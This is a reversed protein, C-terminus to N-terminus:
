YGTFNEIKIREESVGIATVIGEINSVMGPPGVIYFVSSSVDSYKKIMEENIRGSEFGPVDEKTLTYIVKINPLIKSVELLEKHYIIEEKTSFSALLIIINTLKKEFAYTLMSYYPTIGIGGALFVKPRLDQEDLVFTGLPGFFNIQEGEKLEFLKRKFSTIGKKTTIVLYNNLPSVAVTFPRSTGREDPNEMEIRWRNYQGPAFEFGVPKEFNHSYVDETLQERRIFKATYPKPSITM